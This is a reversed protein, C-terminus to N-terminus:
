TYDVKTKQTETLEFEINNVNGGKISWATEEDDDDRWNSPQIFYLKGDDTLSEFFSMFSAIGQKLQIVNTKPEPISLTRSTEEDDRELPIKVSLYTSSTVIDAM